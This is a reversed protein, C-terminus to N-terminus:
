FKKWKSSKKRTGPNIMLLRVVRCTGGAGFWEIL